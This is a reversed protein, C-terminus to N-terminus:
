APVTVASRDQRAIHQFDNRHVASARTMLGPLKGQQSQISGLARM